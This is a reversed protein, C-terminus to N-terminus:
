LRKMLSLKQGGCCSLSWNVNAWIQNRHPSSLCLPSCLDLLFLLASVLSPASMVTVSPDAATIVVLQVSLTHPGDSVCWWCTDHTYVLHSCLLLLPTTISTLAGLKWFHAEQTRIYQFVCFLFLLYFRSTRSPPTINELIIFLPVFYCHQINMSFMLLNTCQLLNM